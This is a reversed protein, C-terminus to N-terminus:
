NAKQTKRLQAMMRDCHVAAQTMRMGRYAHAMNEHRLTKV